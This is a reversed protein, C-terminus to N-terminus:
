RPQMFNGIYGYATADLTARQDGMLFPKDALFDLLAQFDACIIQSIEEHSHRGIGYMKM